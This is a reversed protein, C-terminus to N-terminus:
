QEIKDRRGRIKAAQGRSLLIYSELIKDRPPDVNRSFNVLVAARARDRVSGSERRIMSSEISRGLVASTFHTNIEDEGHRVGAQFPVRGQM